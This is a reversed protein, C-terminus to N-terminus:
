VAVSQRTGARCSRYIADVISLAAVGDQASVLPKRRERCAQLFDAFQKEFPALSIAMPDSAGSAGDPAVPPTEGSDDQVDWHTLRDGTVIASGKTGHFEMREPYGPWFATSAQIVGLAGNEFTLLANVIDESEIRHLAGLKWDAVVSRVPGILWRLLDVQHIAQNMLAGGGEGQWSGKVPRSYYAPPRYWKVYCDAQLVRGLRGAALARQLFQASEDFRHQSVVGITVGSEKGIELIRRADELTTAIPKQLQIPKGLAACLSVPEIRYDPLTCVDVLEVEPDRCLTEGDPLFRARFRAAFDRGKAESSNTCAVIPCGINGWALAHKAAIAGTGIIGIKMRTM